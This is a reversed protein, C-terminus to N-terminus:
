DGNIARLVLWAVKHVPFLPEQSKPEGLIMWLTYEGVSLQGLNMYDAVAARMDDGDWGAQRCMLRLGHQNGTTRQGNPIVATV